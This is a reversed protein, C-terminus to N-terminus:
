VMAAEGAIASHDHAKQPPPPAPTPAPTPHCIRGVLGLFRQKNPERLIRYLTEHTKKILVSSKPKPM